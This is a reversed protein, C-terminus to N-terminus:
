KRKRRNKSRHWTKYNVIASVIWAIGGIVITVAIGAVVLELWGIREPM